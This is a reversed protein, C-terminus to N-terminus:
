KDVSDSNVSTHQSPGLTPEPASFNCSNGARRGSETHELIGVSPVAPRVAQITPPAGNPSPPRPVSARCRDGGLFGRSVVLADGADHELPFIGVDVKNELDEFVKSRLKEFERLKIQSTYKFLNLSFIL